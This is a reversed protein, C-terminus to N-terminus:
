NAIGDAQMQAFQADSINNPDIGNEAFYDEVAAFEAEAEALAAEVDGTIVTGVETEIIATVENEIAERVETGVADEIADLNAEDVLAQVDEHSLGEVTGNELAERLESESLGQLDDETVINEGEVSFQANAVEAGVADVIFATRDEDSLNRIDNIAVTTVVGAANIVVQGAAVVVTDGNEFQRRTNESESVHMVGNDTLVEGERLVLGGSTSQAAPTHAEAGLAQFLDGFISAQAPAAFSASAVIAAIAFKKM